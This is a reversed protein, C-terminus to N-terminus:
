LYCTPTKSKTNYHLINILDWQRNSKLMIKSDKEDIHERNPTLFVRTNYVPTVGNQVSSVGGKQRTLLFVLCRKPNTMSNILHIVGLIYVVNNDWWFRGRNRSITKLEFQFCKLTILPLDNFGFWLITDIWCWNKVGITVWLLNSTKSTILSTTLEWIGGSKFVSLVSLEDTLKVSLHLDTLRLLACQFLLKLDLTLLFSPWQSAM